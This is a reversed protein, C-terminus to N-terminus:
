YYFFFRYTHTHTHTHSIFYHIFNIKGSQDHATQYSFLHYHVFQHQSWFMDGNEWGSKHHMRPHKKFTFSGIEINLNQRGYNSRTTDLYTFGSRSAKPFACVTMFSLLLRKPFYMWSRKWFEEPKNVVSLFSLAREWQGDHIMYSGNPTNTSWYILETNKSQVNVEIETNKYDFPGFDVLVEQLFGTHNMLILSLLVEVDEVEHQGADRRLIFLYIAEQVGRAVPSDGRHHWTSKFGSWCWEKRHADYILM